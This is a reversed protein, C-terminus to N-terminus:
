SKKTALEPQEEKDVAKKIIQSAHGMPCVQCWGRPKTFVGMVVGVVFSSFMLRTIGFAIKKVNGGSHVLMFIFMGGMAALMLNKFWQTRMFMPVSKNLSIKDLFKGLFSGRPCYHSCHIKGHGRLAHIMPTSMCILGLLGFYVNVISLLFFSVILVWSWEQHSKKQLLVKRLM